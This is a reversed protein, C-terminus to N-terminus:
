DCRSISYRDISDFGDEFNQLAEDASFQDSIELHFIELKRAFGRHFINGMYTIKYRRTELM